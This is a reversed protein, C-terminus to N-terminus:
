INNKENKKLKMYKLNKNLINIKDELYKLKTEIFEKKKIEESRRGHKPCRILESEKNAKELKLLQLFIIKSFLLIYIYIYIYILKIRM